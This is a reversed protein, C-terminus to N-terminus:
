NLLDAAHYLDKLPAFEANLAPFDSRWVFEPRKESLWDGRVIEDRSNVELTYEYIVRDTDLNYFEFPRWQPARVRSYELMTTVRYYGVSEFRIDSEYGIIPRHDTFESLDFNAILPRKYNGVMNALLVHFSAPDIKKCGQDIEGFCASGVQYRKLHDKVQTAYFYSTLAKIDSSAFPVEIGDANMQSTADPERIHTAAVAWGLNLNDDSERLPYTREREARLLPYDYRGRLLDFKEAPSFTKVLERQQDKSLKLLEARKWTSYHFADRENEHDSRMWRYAIGGNKSSWVHDAWPTHKTDVRGREPLGAIRRELKMGWSKVLADTPEQFWGIAQYSLTALVATTTFRWISKM